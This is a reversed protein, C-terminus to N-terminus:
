SLSGFGAAGIVPAGIQSYALARFDMRPSLVGTGVQYMMALPLVAGILVLVLSYGSDGFLWAAVPWQVVTLVVGLAAGMLAVFRLATAWVPAENRGTDRGEVVMRTAATGVASSVHDHLLTLFNGAQGGLALGVPGLYVATVKITLFGLLMRVGTQAGSWFLAGTLVWRGLQM